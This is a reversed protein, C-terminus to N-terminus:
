RPNRFLKGRKRSETELAVMVHRRCLIDELRRVNRETHESLKSRKKVATIMSEVIIFIEKKTLFIDKSKM